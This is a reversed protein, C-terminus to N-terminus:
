RPSAGGTPAPTGYERTRALPLRRSRRSRRSRPMAKHLLARCQQRCRPDARRKPAHLVMSYGSRSSPAAGSRKLTNWTGTQLDFQWLDTYEVGTEALEEVESKDKHSDFQQLVVKKKYYGGYVVAVGAGGDGVM